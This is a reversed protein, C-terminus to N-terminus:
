KEPRPSGNKVQLENLEKKLMEVEEELKAQRSKLAALEEEMVAIRRGSYEATNEMVILGDKKTMKTGAPVLLETKGVQLIEMGQPVKDKESEEGFAFSALFLFVIILIIKKM